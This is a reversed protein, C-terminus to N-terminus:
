MSKARFDGSTTRITVATVGGAADTEFRLRVTRGTGFHFSAFGDASEPLFLTAAPPGDATGLVVVHNGQWGYRFLVSDKAFNLRVYVDVVGGAPACGLMEYGQYAGHKAELERRMRNQNATVRELPRPDDLARQLPGYDGHAAAEVIEATRRSLADLRESPAPRGTTLLSLARQGLGGVMLQGDRLEAVLKADKDLEYTGAYKALRAADVAIVKPVEPRNGGFTVSALWPTVRWAATESNNTAAFIFVGDDVYRKCDAIFVGDGGNHEILRTGRPTKGIVWGYGYSTPLMGERIHPTFLKVRAERSLVADGELARHWKLMDGATTHMGGNGRLNWYPGDAAAPRELIPAFRRGRQYGQAMEESKWLPLRYGTKTMGAPQFLNENLFQEYGKGSAMEVIAALLSYGANSYHYRKGPESRLKAAMTRKIIEDRWVPEFDGDGFDSELGSSHTLLHHLTIGRKDPPVDKFFRSIPEDVHLKRQMELKLIAAATFQKTISGISVVTDATFPLRRERDALGYGKELIPEGNRAVLVVGSFGFASLRGLYADLEGGENGRV